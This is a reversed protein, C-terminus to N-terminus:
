KNRKEKKWSEIKKNNEKQNTNVKQNMSKYNRSCLNLGPSSPFFILNHDLM